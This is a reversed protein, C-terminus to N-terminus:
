ESSRQELERRVERALDCIEKSVTLNPDHLTMNHYQRLRELKRWLVHSIRSYNRLTELTAVMRPRSGKLPNPIFRMSTLMKEMQGYILQQCALRNKSVQDVTNKM